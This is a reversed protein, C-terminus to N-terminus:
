ASGVVVIGDLADEGLGGALVFNGGFGAAVSNFRDNAPITGAGEPLVYWSNGGDISRFIRGRPTDLDHVMFGCPSSAREAFSIDRVQGTGSGPFSQEAWTVGGDKTYYMSGGNSGVLWQYPTRAWVCNLGDVTPSTEATAWVIGGNRTVLVTGAAGVAVGEQTSSMHIDSLAEGGSATGDEQVEVGAIVDESFYIYGADGVIWVYSDSLRFIANPRGAAVLGTTIETWSDLDSLLAFHISNSDNSVIVLYDGVVVADSPQEDVALTTIDHQDWTAGTDASIGVEASLGPSAAGSGKAVYILRKNGDSLWGCDGCSPHDAILIKVVERTVHAAAKEAVTMNKIVWMKRASFEGTILIQARESAEMATLDDSSKTTFGAREFIIGMEWGGNFNVPRDCRGYHLHIDFKCRQGLVFEALGFRTVVSASPLDEDGRVEDIIEFEDYQEESPIGVPTLDGTSHSFGTVRAHGKYKAVSGPGSGGAQFFVRGHGTQYIREEAAM